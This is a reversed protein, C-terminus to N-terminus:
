PYSPFLIHYWTYLTKITVSCACYKTSTWKKVMMVVVNNRDDDFWWSSTYSSCLAFFQHDHDPYASLVTCNKYMKIHALLLLNTLKVVILLCYTQTKIGERWRNENYWQKANNCTKLIFRTFFSLSCSPFMKVNTSSVVAASLQWKNNYSLFGSVRKWKKIWKRWGGQWGRRRGRDIMMMRMTMMILMVM